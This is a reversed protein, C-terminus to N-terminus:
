SRIQPQVQDKPTAYVTVTSGPPMPTGPAPDTGWAVGRPAYGARYGYVVQPNFGNNALTQKAFYDFYTNVNPVPVLAVAQQPEQLSSEPEQAAEPPAEPPEAAAHKAPPTM